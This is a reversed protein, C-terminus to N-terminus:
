CHSVSNFLVAFGEFGKSFPVIQVTALVRLRQQFGDLTLALPHISHVGPNTTRAGVVPFYHRRRVTLHDDILALTKCV